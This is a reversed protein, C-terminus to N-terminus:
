GRAAGRRRKLLHQSPSASQAANRYKWLGALILVLSLGPFGFHALGEGLQMADDLSQITVGNVKLGYTALPGRSGKILHRPDYFVQINAGIKNRLQNATAVSLTNNRFSEPYGKLKFVVLYSKSSKWTSTIVSVSTLEGSARILTSKAPPLECVALILLALAAIFPWADARLGPVSLSQSFAPVM